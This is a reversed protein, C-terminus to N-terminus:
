DQIFKLMEKLQKKGEPNLQAYSKAFLRRAFQVLYPPCNQDFQAADQFKFVNAKGQQAIASTLRCAEAYNKQIFESHANQLILVCDGADGTYGFSEIEKPPKIKLETIQRSVSPPSFWWIGAVGLVVAAAALRLWLPIIKPSAVRKERTNAVEEFGEPDLKKWDALSPHEALLRAITDPDGQASELLQRDQEAQQAASEIIGKNRLHAMIDKAQAQTAHHEAATKLRRQFDLEAALDPDNQVAEEFAQRDEPLLEGNLYAYIQDFYSSKKM